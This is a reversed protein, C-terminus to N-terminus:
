KGGGGVDHEGKIGVGKKSVTVHKKVWVYAKKFWSKLGGGQVRSLEEYSVTQLLKSEKIMNM